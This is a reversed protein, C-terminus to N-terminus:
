ESKKKMEDHFFEDHFFLNLKYKFEFTRIKIGFMFLSLLLM